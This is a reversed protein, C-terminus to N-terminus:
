AVPFVQRAYIESPRAHRLADHHTGLRVSSAEGDVLMEWGLYDLAGQFLPDVVREEPVFLPVHGCLGVTIDWTCLQYVLARGDEVAEDSVSALGDVVLRALEQRTKSAAFPLGSQGTCVLRASNELVELLRLTRAADTRDLAGALLDFLGLAAGAQAWSSNIMDLVHREADPSQRAALRMTGDMHTVTESFIAASQRLAGTDIHRQARVDVLLSAVKADLRNASAIAFGIHSSFRESPVARRLPTAVHGRGPNSAIRRLSPGSVPM